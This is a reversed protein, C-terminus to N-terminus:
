ANRRYLCATGIAAGINLMSGDSGPGPLVMQFSMKASIDRRASKLLLYPLDALKDSTQRMCFGRPTASPM